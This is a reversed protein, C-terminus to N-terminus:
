KEGKLFVITDINLKVKIYFASILSLFVISVLTSIAAGNISYIPILFYNLIINLLISIILVNMYIKENNSMILITPNMAGLLFRIFRALVLIILALSGALYEKGFIELIPESFVFYIFIIPLSLFIVLRNGDMVFKQIIEKKEKNFLKAFKPSFISDVAFIFINMVGVLKLVISYIGVNNENDFIGLMIIDVWGMVLALSSSLMLPLAEKLLNKYSINFNSNRINKFFIFSLIYVCLSSIAISIEYSILPVYSDFNDLLIFIFLLISSFMYISVQALFISSFIKKLGRLIETHLFLLSFPLIGASILQIYYDLYPKHFLYNAIFQSLLFLIISLFLSFTFVSIFAKKYIVKITEYDKSFSYKSVYRLLVTDMGLRGIVSLIQLITFSIAFIGMAKAGYQNAVLFTFIYGFIIGSIKLIFAIMSGSLLEKLHFDNKTIKKLINM